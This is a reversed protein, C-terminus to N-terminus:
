PEYLYLHVGTNVKGAFEYAYVLAIGDDRRLILHEAGRVEVIGDLETEALLESFSAAASPTHVTRCRYGPFHTRYLKLVALFADVGEAMTALVADWDGAADLTSIVRVLCTGGARPEIRFESGLRGGEWREEYAFRRPPEVATVVGAEAMGEGMDFRVRGDAIEAPAM